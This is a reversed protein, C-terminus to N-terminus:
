FEDKVLRMRYGMDKMLRSITSEHPPAIGELECQEIVYVLAGQYSPSRTTALYDSVMQRLRMSEEFHRNTM